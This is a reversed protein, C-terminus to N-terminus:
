LCKGTNPNIEFGRCACYAGELCQGHTASLAPNDNCTQDMGVTCSGAKGVCGYAPLFCIGSPCACVAIDLCSYSCPMGNLTEMPKACTDWFEGPGPWWVHFMTTQGGTQICLEALGAVEASYSVEIPPLIPDGNLDRSLTSDIPSQAESSPGDIVAAPQMDVAPGSAEGLSDTSMTLDPIWPLDRALLDPPPSMDWAPESATDGPAFPTEGAIATDPQPLYVPENSSADRVVKITTQGCGLAVLLV